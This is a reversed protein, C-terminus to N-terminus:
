ADKVRNYNQRIVLLAEKKLWDFTRKELMWHFIKERM